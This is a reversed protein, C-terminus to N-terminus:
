LRPLLIFPGHFGPGAPDNPVRSLASRSDAPKVCSSSAVIAPRDTCATLASSRPSRRLGCTSVTRASDAASSRVPASAVREQSARSRRSLVRRGVFQGVRRQRKRERAQEAAIGVDLRQPAPEGIGRSAQDREDTGSADPLGAQRQFQGARDCVFVRRAHHEDRQGGKAIRREDRRRNGFRKSQGVDGRAVQRPRERTAHASRGVSSTRSLKSCSSSAADSTVSRSVATPVSLTSAVLRAGRRTARRARIRRRVVPASHRLPHSTAPRDPSRRGGHTQEHFAHAVDM